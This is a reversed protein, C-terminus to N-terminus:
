GGALIIRQQGSVAAPCEPFRVAVKQLLEAGQHHRPAEKRFGDDVVFPRSKDFRGGMDADCQVPVDRCSIVAIGKQLSRIDLERDLIYM